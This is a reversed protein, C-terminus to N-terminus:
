GAPGLSDRGREASDHFRHSREVLLHALGRGRGQGHLRGKGQLDLGVPVADDHGSM